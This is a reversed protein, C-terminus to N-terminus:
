PNEKLHRIIQDVYEYFGPFLLLGAETEEATMDKGTPHGADNRLVRAHDFISSLRRDIGDALLDPLRKKLAMESLAGRVDGFITSIHAPRVASLTRSLNVSYPAIKGIAITEALLLILKECACGLMVASSRYLGSAWTEVGEALYAMVVADPQAVRAKVAHLYRSENHPSEQRRELMARGKETVMFNPMNAPGTDDGLTAIVGVRALRSLYDLAVFGDWVGQLGGQEEISQILDKLSTYQETLLATDILRRLADANSEEILRKLLDAKTEGTVMLSGPRIVAMREAEMQIGLM